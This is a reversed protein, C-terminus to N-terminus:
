QKMHLRYLGVGFGLVPDIFELRLVLDSGVFSRNQMVQQAFSGNIGYVTRGDPLTDGVRVLRRLNKGKVSAVYVAQLGSAGTAAFAVNGASVAYDPLFSQLPGKEHPPTTANSVVLRPSTGGGASSYLGPDYASKDPNWLGSSWVRDNGSIVPRGFGWIDFNRGMPDGPAAMTATAVPAVNDAKLMPSACADAVGSVGSVPTDLIAAHGFVNYAVGVSVSGSVAPIGASGVGGFGYGTLCVWYRGDGLM